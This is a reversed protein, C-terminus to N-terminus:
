RASAGTPTRAAAPATAPVAMRARGRPGAVRPGAPVAFRVDDLRANVVAREIRMRDPAAGPGGGTEILFPLRLGDVTRWDGYRVSVRRTAGGPVDATRDYRVDLFTEADIWVDEAGGAALQVKLHHTRRGDIQDEGELTVRNGKAASDILPGDIGHGARAYLLEQPSYPQVEPRGQVSRVKFGRAGDFVRFSREGMAELQLRTRNPRKQDLEFPMSPVPARASEVRGLWVMTEVKRWAELGGRAAENRAVLEAATLGGAVTPAPAVALLGLTITVATARKM